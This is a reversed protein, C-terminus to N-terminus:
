FFLHKKMSSILFSSDGWQASLFYCEYGAKEVNMKMGYLKMAEYSVVKM